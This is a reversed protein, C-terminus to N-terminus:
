RPRRLRPFFLGTRQKYARYSEGFETLLLREERPLRVAMLLAQAALMSPGVVWNQLLLVQGLGWLLHASYMPHRVHRYVGDTVLKQGVQIEAIASWARGLDAHSRWLLWIGAAFLLAGSWGMWDPLQYDAWHLWPTLAYILPLVFMALFALFLLWAEVSATEPQRRGELRRRDRLTYAGRVISAAILEIFYVATFISRTM